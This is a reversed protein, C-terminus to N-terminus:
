SQLYSYKQKEIIKKRLNLFFIVVIYFLYISLLLRPTMAEVKIISFNFGGFFNVLFIIIKSFFETSFIFPLAFLGSVFSILIALFSSLMFFPILPLVLINPILSIISFEGMLYILIPIVTIQVAINSVVIEKLSFKEPLFFFVKKIIESFSILGLTAVFSLQFSADYLLILPNLFIMISGALVLANLPSSNKRFFKSLIFLSIMIGARVITAGAGVMIVFFIIFILSILYRINRHFSSLFKFFFYAIITLNFGSLVLIHILGTRRFNEELSAPISDKIGLLVGLVLSSTKKAFIRKTKEVLLNKFKFIYFFIDRKSNRELIEIVPYFAVHTVGDKLLFKQYDFTIGNENEFNEPIKVEGSISIKDGYFYSSFKDTRILYKDRNISEFLFSSTKETTSIESAVYGELNIVKIDTIRFVIEKSLSFFIALIFIIFTIKNIVVNEILFV